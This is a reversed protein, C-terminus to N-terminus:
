NVDLNRSFIEEQSLTRGILRNLQEKRLFNALEMDDLRKPRILFSAFYGLPILLGTLYPKEIARYFSKGLVFFPHARITYMAKGTRLRGRFMGRASSSQRLHFLPLDRLSRTRWGKMRAKAGDLIDWGLIPILGGIDYFCKTRYTKCAGSVHTDPIRELVWGDNKKIHTKGSALGLMPDAGFSAFIRKFYDPPLVVDADMKVLFDVDLNLHELGKEFVRVVNAGVRRDQPGLLRLPEIFSHAEAAKKIVSWTDDASRDDVIIWKRPSASQGAISKIVQPLSNSEDHAPTIIAYAAENM